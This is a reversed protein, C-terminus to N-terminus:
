ETQARIGHTRLTASSHRDKNVVGPIGTGRCGRVETDERIDRNRIRYNVSGGTAGKFVLYRVSGSEHKEQSEVYM